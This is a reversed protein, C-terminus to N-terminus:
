KRRIPYKLSIGGYFFNGKNVITGSYSSSNDITYDVKLESLETLGWSRGAYLSLVLSNFFIRELAIAPNILIFFRHENNASAYYEIRSGSTTNTAGGFGDSVSGINFGMSIGPEPILSVRDTLRVKYGVRVPIQLCMFAHLTYPYNYPQGFTISQYYEKYVVGTEIFWKPNFDRRINVGYLIFKTPITSLIGGSDEGISNQDEYVAAELGLYTRSQGYVTIHCVATVILCFGVFLVRSM